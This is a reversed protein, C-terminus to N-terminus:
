SKLVLAITQFLVELSPIKDGFNLSTGAAGKHGGGGMALAIKSVDFDDNSRFSLLMRNKGDERIISYGVSFTCKDRLYEGIESTIKESNNYFAVKIGNFEQYLAGDGIHKAKSQVKHRVRNGIKKILDFDPTPTELCLKDGFTLVGQTMDNADDWSPSTKQWTDYISIYEAFERWKCLLEPNVHNYKAVLPAMVNEYCLLAGSKTPDFVVNEGNIYPATTKHHDIIITGCAKFEEWRSYPPTFDIFMLGPEAPIEDHEKTKYFMFNIEVGLILPSIAAHCIMAAATGDACTKHSIIKRVKLISDIEIM